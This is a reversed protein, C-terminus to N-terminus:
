AIMWIRGKRTFYAALPFEGNEEANHLADQVLTGSTVVTLNEGQANTVEIVAYNGFNGKGWSVSQVTLEQDAVDDLHLPRGQAQKEAFTILRKM